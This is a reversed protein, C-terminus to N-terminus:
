VPSLHRYPFTHQRESVSVHIPNGVVGTGGQSLIQAVTAAPTAGVGVPSASPTGLPALQGSLAAQAIQESSSVTPTPQSNSTAPQVPSPPPLALLSERHRAAPLISKQLGSKALATCYLQFLTDSRIM